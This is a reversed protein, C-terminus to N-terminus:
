TNLQQFHCDFDFGSRGIKHEWMLWCALFLLKVIDRSNYFRCLESGFFSMLNRVNVRRIGYSLTIITVSWQVRVKRDAWRYLYGVICM